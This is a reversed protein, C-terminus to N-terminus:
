DETAVEETEVEILVKSQEGLLAYRKFTQGYSNVQKDDAYVIGTLSDEVGWVLNKLDPKKIHPREFTKPHSKPRPMVFQCTLKVPGEALAWGQEQVARQAEEAIRLRWFKLGKSIGARFRSKDTVITTGAAQPRPDGM